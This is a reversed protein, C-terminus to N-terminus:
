QLKSMIEDYTMEGYIEKYEGPILYSNYEEKTIEKDGYFYHPEELINSESVEEFSYEGDGNLDEYYRMLLPQDYLTELERREANWKWLTEYVEAGAMDSNSNYVIGQKELYSYGANGGAGYVWDEMVPVLEGDIITYMHVIYGTLGCVLEPIDDDDFYILGYGANNYANESDKILNQFSEIKEKYIDKYSAEKDIAEDATEKVTTDEKAPESVSEVTESVSEVTEDKQKNEANGCGIASISLSTVLGITILIKSVTKRKM